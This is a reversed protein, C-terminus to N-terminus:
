SREDGGERSMGAAAPQVAYFLCDSLAIRRDTTMMIPVFPRRARLVGDEVGLLERSLDIGDASRAEFPWAAGARLWGFPTGPALEEFNHRDIDRSITVEADPSMREGFALRVGERLEIRVPAEFCTIPV